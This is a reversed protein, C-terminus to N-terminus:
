KELRTVPENVTDPPLKVGGAVLRTAADGINDSKSNQNRAAGYVREKSAEYVLPFITATGQVAAKGLGNTFRYNGADGGVLEAEGTVTKAQGAAPDAFRAGNLNGRLDDGAVVAGPTFPRLAGSANTTGDYVRDNFTVSPVDILKPTINAKGVVTTMRLSYDGSSAGTLGLEGSVAKGQGLNKDNFNAQKLVVALTDGALVGAPAPSAESAPGTMGSSAISSASTIAAAPV